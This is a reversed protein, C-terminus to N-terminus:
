NHEICPFAAPVAGFGSRDTKTELERPFEDIVALRAKALNATGYNHSSSVPKSIPLRHLYKILLVRRRYLDSEYDTPPEVGSLLV